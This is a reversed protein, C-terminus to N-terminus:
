EGPEPIEVDKFHKRWWISFRVKGDNENRALGCAGWILAFVFIREYTMKDATGGKLRVRYHHLLADLLHCCGEMMGFASMPMVSSQNLAFELVSPPYHSFFVSFIGRVRRHELTDTWSSVFPLWGIDKSGVHLVGARSVTAPTAYKLHSIEFVLRM